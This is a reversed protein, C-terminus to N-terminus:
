APSEALNMVPVHTVLLVTDTGNTASILVRYRGSDQDAFPQRFTLNLLGGALGDPFSIHGGAYSGSVDAAGVGNPTLRRAEISFSTWGSFDVPDGTDADILEITDVWDEATAVPDLDPLAIM